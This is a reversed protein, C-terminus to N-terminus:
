SLNVYVQGFVEALKAVDTATDVEPSAPDYFTALRPKVEDLKALRDWTPNAAFAKGYVTHAVGEADQWRTWVNVVEAANALLPMAVREAVTKDAQAANLPSGGPKILGADEAAIQGYADWARAQVQLWQNRQAKEADIKWRSYQGLLGDDIALQDVAGSTLYTEVQEPTVRPYKQRMEARCEESTGCALEPVVTHLALKKGPVAERLVKSTAAVFRNIEETDTFTDNYGLQSTFRVGVVGPRSAQAVVRKLADTYAEDGAKWDDALETSVWTRLRADAAATLAKGTDSEGAAAVAAEDARVEEADVYCASGPPDCEPKADDEVHDEPAPDGEGGEVPEGTVETLCEQGEPCYAGESPKAAELAGSTLWYMAAERAEEPTNLWRCVVYSPTDAGLDGTCDRPDDPSLASAAPVGMGLVAMGAVVAFVRRLAM